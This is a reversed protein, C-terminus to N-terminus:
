MVEEVGEVRECSYFSVEERYGDMRYVRGVMETWM